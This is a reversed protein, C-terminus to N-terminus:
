SQSQGSALEVGVEDTHISEKKEKASAAESSIKSDKPKCILQLAITGIM